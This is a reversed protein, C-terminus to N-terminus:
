PKVAKVKEIQALVDLADDSIDEPKLGDMSAPIVVEKGCVCRFVCTSVNLLSQDEKCAPCKLRFPRMKEAERKSPKNRPNDLDQKVYLWRKGAKKTMMDFLKEKGYQKAYVEGEDIIFLVPDEKNFLKRFHSKFEDRFTPGLNAPIFNRMDKKKEVPPPPPIEEGSERKNKSENKATHASTHSEHAGKTKGKQAEWRAKWYQSRDNPVPQYKWYDVITIIGKKDVKIMRLKTMKALGRATIKTSLTLLSALEAVKYGNGLPNLVRGPDIGAHSLDMLERFMYREHATSKKRVDSELWKQAYWQYWPRM